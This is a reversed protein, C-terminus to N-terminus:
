TQEPKRAGCSLIRGLGQGIEPTRALIIIIYTISLAFICYLCPLFKRHRRLLHISRLIENRCNWDQPHVVDQCAVQLRHPCFLTTPRHLDRLLLELSQRFIIDAFAITWLCMFRRPNIELSSMHTRWTRVSRFKSRRMLSQSISVAFGDMKLACFTRCFTPQKCCHLAWSIM